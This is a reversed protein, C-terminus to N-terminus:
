LFLMKMICRMGHDRKVFALLKYTTFIYRLTGLPHLAWWPM